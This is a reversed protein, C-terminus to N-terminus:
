ALFVRTVTDEYFRRLKYRRASLETTITTRLVFECSHGRHRRPPLGIIGRLEYEALRSTTERLLKICTNQRM